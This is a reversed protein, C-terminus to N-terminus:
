TFAILAAIGIVLSVAGAAAEAATGERELDLETPKERIGEGGALWYRWWPMPETSVQWWQRRRQMAHALLGIGFLMFGAGVLIKV